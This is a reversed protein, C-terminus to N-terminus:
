AALELRAPSALVLSVTVLHVHVLAPHYRTATSYHYPLSSKFCICWIATVPGRRSFRSSCWATIRSTLPSISHSPGRGTSCTPSASPTSAIARPKPRYVVMCKYLVSTPLLFKGWAAFSAFRLARITRSSAAQRPVKCAHGLLGAGAPRRGALFQGLPALPLPVHPVIARATPSPTGTSSCQSHASIGGSHIVVWCIASSYHLVTPPVCGGVVGGRPQGLVSATRARKGLSIPYVRARHSRKASV